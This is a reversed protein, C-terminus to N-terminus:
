QVWGRQTVAELIEQFRHEVRHRARVYKQGHLAVEACKDPASLLGAVKENLSELGSYVFLHEEPVFHERLEPTDEALLVGGCALVDFVRQSVVDRQDLRSVDLNVGSGSYISHLHEPQVAGRYLIGNQEWSSDGWVQITNEGLARVASLGRLLALRDNAAELCHRRESAATIYILFEEPLSTDEDTLGTWFNARGRQEYLGQWFADLEKERHELQHRALVTQVRANQARSGHDVFSVSVSQGLTKTPDAEMHTAGLLLPRIDKYALEQFTSIDAPRHTFLISSSLETGNRVAMHSSPLSEISWSVYPVHGFTCLLALDADYNVGVVLSPQWEHCIARFPGVKLDVQQLIRIEFGAEAFLRALEPQLRPHEVLLVRGRYQSDLGSNEVVM